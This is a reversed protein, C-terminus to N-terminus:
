PPVPPYRPRLFGRPVKRGSFHPHAAAVCLCVYLSYNFTSCVELVELKDSVDGAIICADTPHERLRQIFDMNAIADTHIDSMAFLRSCQIPEEREMADLEDFDVFM